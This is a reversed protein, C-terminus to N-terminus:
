ARRAYAQLNLALPTHVGGPLGRASLFVFRRIFRTTRGVPPLEPVGPVVTIEGFSERELARSLSHPTFHNVHVLNDAVAPRYDRHIFARAREKV